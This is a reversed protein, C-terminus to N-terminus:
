KKSRKRMLFFATLEKGGKNSYDPGLPTNGEERGGGEKRMRKSKGGIVEGKWGKGGKVEEKEL